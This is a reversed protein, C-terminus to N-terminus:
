HLWRSRPFAGFSVYTTKSAFLEGALEEDTIGATFAIRQGSTISMSYNVAFNVLGRQNVALDGVDIRYRGDGLSFWGKSSLAANFSAGVPLRVILAVGADMDDGANGYAIRYVTAIGPVLSVPPNVFNITLKKRGIDNLYRVASADGSAAGVAVIRGNPALNVAYFEDGGGPLVDTVVIGPALTNGPPGFGTDPTGDKNLRMLLSNPGTSAVLAKGNRQVAVGYAHGSLPSLDILLIGDDNFSADLEGDKTFRAVSPQGSGNAIATVGAVVFRGDSMLAVDEAESLGAAGIMATAIGDGSFTEDLSGNPNLRVLMFGRGSQGSPSGYGAGVIKGDPQVVVGRGLSGAGGSNYATWGNQSFTKDLTGNKHYRLFLFGDYGNGDADEGLINGSVVIKGDRQLAVDFGNEDRPLIDTFTVGDGGGFSRDLRGNANFRALLVQYNGDIAATGSAVLKGDPQRAIAYFTSWNEGLKLVVVGHSGFSNDPTGDENFKFLAARGIQGDVWGSAIVKGAPTVVVDNMRALSYGPVSLRVIGDDSFSPDLAGAVPVARDELAHVVLSVRRSRAM